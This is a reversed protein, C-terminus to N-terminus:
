CLRGLLVLMKWDLSFFHSPTFTLIPSLTIESPPRPLHFDSEVAARMVFVVLLRVWRLCQSSKRAPFCYEFCLYFTTGPCAQHWDDRQKLSKESHHSM